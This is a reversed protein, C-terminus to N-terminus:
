ASLSLSLVNLVAKPKLTLMEASLNQLNIIFFGSYETYQDSIISAVWHDLKSFLLM